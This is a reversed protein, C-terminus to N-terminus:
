LQKKKRKKRKVKEMKKKTTSSKLSVHKFQAQEIAHMIDQADSTGLETKISANHGFTRFDPLLDRPRIDTPINDNEKREMYFLNDSSSTHSSSHSSSATPTITSLETSGEITTNKLGPAEEINNVDKIDSM